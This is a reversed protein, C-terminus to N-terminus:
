PDKPTSQERRLRETLSALYQEFLVRPDHGFIAIRGTHMMLLLGVCHAFLAAAEREAVPEDAGLTRMVAELRRVIGRLRENLRMNLERTLGRPHMGNILYFGLDLDRPNTAYYDFLALAGARLAAFRPGDPSISEGVAADLRALSHALLDGYIAEKGDYHFYIAGATYGAERAIARMSAGELGVSEFVRRAAALIIGRKHENVSKLREARSDDM